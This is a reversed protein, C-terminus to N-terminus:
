KSSKTPSPLLSSSSDFFIDSPFLTLRFAATNCNTVYFLVSHFFSTFTLSFSFFFDYQSHCMSFFFILYMYWRCYQKLHFKGYSRKCKQSINFTFYIENKESWFMNEHVCMPFSFVCLRPQFMQDIFVNNTIFTTYGPNLFDIM